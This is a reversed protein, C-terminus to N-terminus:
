QWVCPLLTATMGPGSRADATLLKLPWHVFGEMGSEYGFDIYEELISEM